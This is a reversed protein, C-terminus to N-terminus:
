SRRSDANYPKTVSVNLRFTKYPLPVVSHQMMSMKHLSPQRNFLVIDGEILHRNVIDGEQLTVTEKDLHNLSRIQNDKKFKISKAGPYVKPGNRVYGLLREKNYANVKEPYTLNICIDYPVGLQNLKLRADPTIVSRASFDVRKGMLNGRVRGEKSKLRDMIAKLPRGSRQQAQPIGPINNNVLTAVHYQLLQYWDDIIKKSANTAIKQKLTKNTKIIDCLKHTLDDEMRTNNDARVSPRVSPPAVPLVSCILWEPRCFDKNFGMITVDEDTIRRLIKEVDDADWIVQNYVDASKGETEEEGEQIGIDRKRWEAILMGIAERKITYPKIAGCGDENKVGCVSVKACLENIALFRNVGKTSSVIKVIDPDNASILLKSCRWCVNQLCKITYKLYHMYFVKKALEIHGFYGPCHRNDLEDTPCKKGHELVGMRPDFLGGVKPIDGDYTENTYIEAVSRRRIEDPSLISFQVGVVKQIDANPDLEQFMSMKIYYIESNKLNL